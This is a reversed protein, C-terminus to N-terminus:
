AVKSWIVDHNAKTEGREERSLAPGWITERPFRSERDGGRVPEGVRLQLKAAEGRVCEVPETRRQVHLRAIEELPDGLLFAFAGSPGRAFGGDNTAPVAAIM